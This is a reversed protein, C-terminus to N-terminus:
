SAREGCVFGRPRFGYVDKHWDSYYSFDDSESFSWNPDDKHPLIHKEFYDYLELKELEREKLDEEYDVFQKAIVELTPGGMWPMKGAVLYWEIQEISEPNEVYCCPTVTVVDGNTMEMKFENFGNENVKKTLTELMKEM